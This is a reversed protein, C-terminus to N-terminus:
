FPGGGGDVPSQLIAAALVLMAFAFQTHRRDIRSIWIQLQAVTTKM